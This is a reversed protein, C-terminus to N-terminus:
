DGARQRRQDPPVYEIVNSDTVPFKRDCQGCRLEDPYEGTVDDRRLWFRAGCRTCFVHFDAM